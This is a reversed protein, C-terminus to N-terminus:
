LENAEPICNGQLAFLQELEVKCVTKLVNCISSEQGVCIKRQVVNALALREINHM